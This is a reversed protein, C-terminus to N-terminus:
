KLLFSDVKHGIGKNICKMIKAYLVVLLGTLTLVYLFYVVVDSAVERGQLLIMPLRQLMYAPFLNEGWFLLYRNGIKVRMTILVILFAFLISMLQYCVLFGSYTRTIHYIYAFICFGVVYVFPNLFLKTIRKEFRAYLMGFFYVGLTNYWYNEKVYSLGVILFVTMVFSLVFFSVEKEKSVVASIYTILYLSIIGFIYWNSNGVSQWGILSLLLQKVSYAKGMLLGIGYYVVVIAMFQALVPLVRKVLFKDIYDKGKNKISLFVGYGSYFLFMVVILQDLYDDWLVLTKDLISLNGVYQKFHRFIVLLIFIGKIANTQEKSLYTTNGRVCLKADKLIILLLLFIFFKM